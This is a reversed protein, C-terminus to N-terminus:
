LTTAGNSPTIVCRLTSTPASTCASAALPVNRNVIGSGGFESKPLRFQRAVRRMRCPTPANGAVRATVFRSLELAGQRGQTDTNHYIREGRPEDIVDRGRHLGGEVASKLACLAGGAKLFGSLGLPETHGWRANRSRVPSACRNTKLVRAKGTKPNVLHAQACALCTVQVYTLDDDEPDDAAWAQVIDGTNPCRYLFPPM